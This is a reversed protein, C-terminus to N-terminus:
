CFHGLILSGIQEFVAGVIKKMKLRFNTSSIHGESQGSFSSFQQLRKRAFQCDSKPGNKSFTGFYGFLNQSFRAEDSKEVYLSTVKHAIDFFIRPTSIYYSKNRILFSIELDIKEFYCKKRFL